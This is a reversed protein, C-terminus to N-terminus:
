YDRARVVSLDFGHKVMLNDGITNLENLVAIIEEALRQIRAFVPAAEDKSSTANPSERHLRHVLWNREEKVKWIRADLDADLPFQKRVQDLLREITKRNDSELAAHVKATAQGLELKRAVALFLALTHEVLQSQLVVFGIQQCLEEFHPPKENM